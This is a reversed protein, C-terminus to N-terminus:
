GGSSRRPTLVAVARAVPAWARVLLSGLRDASGDVALVVRELVAVVPELRAVVARGWAVLREVNPGFRVLLVRWLRGLPRLLRRTLWLGARDWLRVVAHWVPTALRRLLRGLPGLVRM